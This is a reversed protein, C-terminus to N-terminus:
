RGTGQRRRRRTGGNLPPIGPTTGRPWCQAATIALLPPAAADAGRLVQVSRGGPDGPQRIEAGVVVVVAQGHQQLGAGAVGAQGFQAGLHVPREQAARQHGPQEALRPPRAMGPVGPDADVLRDEDGPEGPGARGCQVAQERGVRGVLAQFQPEGLHRLRARGALGPGAVRREAADLRRVLPVVDGVRFEHAHMVHRGVLHLFAPLQQPLRHARDGVFAERVQRGVGGPQGPLVPRRGVAPVPAVQLQDAEGVAAAPHQLVGAVQEREVRQQADVRVRQHDLGVPRGPGRDRRHAAQSRLRRGAPRPREGALHDAAVLQLQPGAADLPERGNAGPVVRRLEEVNVVGLEGRVRDAGYLRDVRVEPQHQAVRGPGGHPCQARVTRRGSHPRRV